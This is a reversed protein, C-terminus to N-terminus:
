IMTLSQKNFLPKVTVQSYNQHMKLPHEEPFYCYRKEPDIHKIGHDAQVSTASLSVYNEQGPKVLFSHRSTLPYSGKTGVVTVFGRFNDAITGASVQDTHADLILTLGKNQGAESRFYLQM